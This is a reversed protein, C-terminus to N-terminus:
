HCQTSLTGHKGKLATVLDDIDDESVLPNVQQHSIRANALLSKINKLKKQLSAHMVGCCYKVHNSLNMCGM